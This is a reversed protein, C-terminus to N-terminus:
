IEESSAEATPPVKFFIMRRNELLAQSLFLFIQQINVPWLGSADSVLDQSSGAQHSLSVSVNQSLFLLKWNEKPTEEAAAAPLLVLLDGTYGAWFGLRAMGLKGHKGYSNGMNYTTGDSEYHPHATAGNVAIFKSWDM